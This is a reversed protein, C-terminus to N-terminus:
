LTLTNLSNRFKSFSYKMWLHWEVLLVPSAAPCLHHLHFASAHPGWYSWALCPKYLSKWSLWLLLIDRDWFCFLDPEWALGVVEAERPLGLNCAPGLVTPHLASGPSSINDVRWVSSSVHLSLLAAIVAVASPKEAANSSTRSSEVHSWGNEIYCRWERWFPYTPHRPFSRLFSM